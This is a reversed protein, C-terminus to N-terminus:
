AAPDAARPPTRKGRLPCRARSRLSAADRILRQAAFIDAQTAGIKDRVDDQLVLLEAEARAVASDLRRREGDVEAARISRQPVASRYGCTLVYATGQAVGASAATGKLM